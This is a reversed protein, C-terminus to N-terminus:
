VEIELQGEPNHSEQNVEDNKYKQKQIEVCFSNLKNKGEQM